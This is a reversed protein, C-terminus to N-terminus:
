AEVSFHGQEFNLKDAIRARLELRRYFDNYAFDNSFDYVTATLILFIAVTLTTFLLTTKTQIKM